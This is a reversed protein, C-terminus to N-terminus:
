NVWIGMVVPALLLRRRRVIGDELAGYLIVFLLFSVTQPRIILLQWLGFFAFVCAAIAVLLSGCRNWTRVLLLTMTLALLLSNALQVLSLGGLQYLRYFSVQWAWNADQLPKDAVTYTFLDQDLLCHAEAMVKGRALHHWLDTQYNRVVATAIFVLAPVLLFRTTNDTPLWSRIARPMTM